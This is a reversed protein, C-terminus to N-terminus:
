ITDVLPCPNTGVEVVASARHSTVRRTSARDETPTRAERRWNGELRPYQELNKAANLDRDMVLGCKDCVYTRESLSLEDKVKGCRHCRKSSPFWRDAVTLECSYLRAKYTLFTRLMGFGVDSIARALRENRLMGRVNLDEIVVAQNERVLKTTVKHAWDRRINGIRQYIRAVQMRAKHRNQGGPERRILRRNARRLQKLSAALPKPAEIPDGVSPMIAVKLGLDIGLTARQQVVPRRFEGQVRISVYWHGAQRSVRASLIKGDFRLAERMRILGIAPLRIKTGDVRFKDNAVYFSDDIGRKRKKPYGMKPGKRRGKVSAFFASFASGLDRFAEATADRPSEYTWPFEEGRIANFQKKLKDASPHGGSRYQRGWEDLAWNYAFRSCGAARALLNAQKCTPDLAIRHALEEHGVPKPARKRM